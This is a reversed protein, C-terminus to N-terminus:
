FEKLRKSKNNSIKICFPVVALVFIMKALRSCFKAWTSPMILTCLQIAVADWFYLVIFAVFVVLIAVKSNKEIKYKVFNQAIFWGIAFGILEGISVCGDVIMTQPDVLLKGDVYDLPYDKNFYFFLLALGFIVICITTILSKKFNCNELFSTLYPALLLFVVGIVGGVFVDQPTHYGFYCRTFLTFLTFVILCISIWRRKNWLWVAIGGYCSVATASHGSPFSYGSAGKLGSEDPIIRMDRIWPRYICACLKFINLIARSATFGVFLRFGSKSDILWYIVAMAAWLWFANVFNTVELAFPNLVGGVAERFDQLALLIDIDM